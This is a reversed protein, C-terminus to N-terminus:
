LSLGGFPPINGRPFKTENPSPPPTSAFEGVMYRVFDGEGGGGGVKSTPHPPPPYPPAYVCFATCMCPPACM